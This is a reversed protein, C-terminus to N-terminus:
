YTATLQTSGCHLLGRFTSEEDDELIDDEGEELDFVSTVVLEFNHGVSQAKRITAM